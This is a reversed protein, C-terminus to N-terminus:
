DAICRVPKGGSRSTSSRVYIANPRFDLTYTGSGSSTSSWYFGNSGRGIILSNSYINGARILYLPRTRIKNLGDTAYSNGTNLGIIDQSLLLERFESVSNINGM